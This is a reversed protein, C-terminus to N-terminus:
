KWTPRGDSIISERECRKGRRHLARIIRGRFVLCFSHDRNCTQHETKKAHAISRGAM